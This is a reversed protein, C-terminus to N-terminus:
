KNQHINKVRLTQFYTMALMSTAFLMQTMKKLAPNAAGSYKSVYSNLMLLCVNAFVFAMRSKVFHNGEEYYIRDLVARGEGDTASKTQPEGAEGENGEKM